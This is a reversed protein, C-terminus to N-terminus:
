VAKWIVIEREKLKHHAVSVYEAAHGVLAAPSLNIPFSIVKYHKRAFQIHLPSHPIQAVLKVVVITSNEATSRRDLGFPRELAGWMVPVVAASGGDIAVVYNGRLARLTSANL